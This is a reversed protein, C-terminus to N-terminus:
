NTCHREQAAKRGVLKSVYCEEHIAEGHEDTKSEELEVSERCLACEPRWQGASIKESLQVLRSM